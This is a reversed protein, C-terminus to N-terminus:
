KLGIWGLYLCVLVVQWALVKQLRRFTGRCIQEIWCVLGEDFWLGNWDAGKGMVGWAQLGEGFDQDVWQEFVRRM